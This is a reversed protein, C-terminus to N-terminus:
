HEPQKTNSIDSLCSHFAKPADQSFIARWRIGVCFLLNTTFESQSPMWNDYVYWNQTVFCFRHSSFWINSAAEPQHQKKINQTNCLADLRPTANM